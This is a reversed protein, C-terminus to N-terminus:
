KKRSQHCTNLQTLRKTNSQDSFKNSLKFFVINRDTREAPARAERTLENRESEVAEVKAGFVAKIGFSAKTPAPSPRPAIVKAVKESAELM